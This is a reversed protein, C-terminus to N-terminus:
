KDGDKMRRKTDAMVLFFAAAAVFFCADGFLAFINSANM